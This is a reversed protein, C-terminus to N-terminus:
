PCDGVPGAVIFSQSTGTYASYSLGPVQSALGEYRLRYIGPEANAPIRWLIEAQSSFSPSFQPEPIDSHWVFSTEPDADTAILEWEEDSLQREVFLFSGGTKVDSNPSSAQFMAQVVDGQKYQAEPQQNVAGFGSSGPSEPVELPLLQILQPSSTPPTPGNDSAQAAIMDLALRRSEQQVAALSWPGFQNSAAEYMQLAYEERTTLYSVYDNSLGNIVVYDVGDQKLVDILTNRIRRGAMTTIEWPLGIIALNGLRFLQFPVISASANVPPGFIFLIPKEAQCELNLGPLTGLNCGVAASFLQTPVNGNSLARFENAVTQAYDPDACTVGAETFEGQEGPQAGHGAAPFSVGMAATCTRKPNADLAPPHQLSSLVVPDTIEVDDMQVYGFRYDVPGTLSDDANAYLELAKLLQKQGMAVTLANPENPDLLEAQASLMEPNDFWMQTFADGEDAQMFSSVFGANGADAQLREFLYGAYGKNDGSIPVAGLGYDSVADSTPHVGFWNLSGVEQREAGSGRQLRLLSMLRPTDVDQGREDKYLAREAESNQMYAPIARNKNANLLEGQALLLEGPQPAALMNEHAQKISAFLGSVTIEFTEPDHGLRLANYATYHAQGGPTSHTHTPSLMVNEASYYPSLEGDAAIRDLVAKRVSEFMMGTDTLSIVVRKNNCPSAIVFSRAYQRQYIGASYNSPSENGMHIKGGAPGTIDAKAAGFQFATNGACEPVSRLSETSAPSPISSESSAHLGEGYSIGPSQALCAQAKSLPTEQAGGQNGDQGGSSGAQSGSYGGSSGGGCASLLLAFAIATYPIHKTELPAVFARSSNTYRKLM